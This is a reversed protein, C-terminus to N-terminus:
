TKNIGRNTKKECTAQLLHFYNNQHFCYLFIQSVILLVCTKVPSGELILALWAGLPRLDVKANRGVGDELSHTEGHVNERLHRTHFGLSYTFTLMFSAMAHQTAKASVLCGDVHSPFRILVVQSEIVQTAAEWCQQCKGLCWSNEEAMKDGLKEAWVRM